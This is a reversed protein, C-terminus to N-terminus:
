AEIAVGVSGPAFVLRSVRSNRSRSLLARRLPRLWRLRMQSVLGPSDVNITLVGQNFGALRCHDRFDEDVLRAIRAGVEALRETDAAWKGKLLGAIIEGAPMEAGGQTHNRQVWRLPAEDDM